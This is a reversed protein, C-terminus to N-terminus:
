LDAKPRLAKSLSQRIEERHNCLTIKWMGSEPLVQQTSDVVPLTIKIKGASGSVLGSFDTTSFSLELTNLKFVVYKATSTLTNFEIDSVFEYDTSTLQKHDVASKSSDDVATYEVIDNYIYNTNNIFSTKLTQRTDNNTMNMRVADEVKIWRTGDFRFLRNPLFDTRLFFDDTGPNEPFQIGHGFDYGNSPFGDGVLYGTYGTRVPRNATTSANYSSNSADLETEDATQLTTKGKEDVALTYFQRTEYGSM